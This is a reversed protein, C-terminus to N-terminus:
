PNVYVLGGNGEITAKAALGTASPAANTGDALYVNAALGNSAIAVLINDVSVQSLGCVAVFDTCSALTSVTITTITPVTVSFQTLATNANLSLNSIPGSSSLGFVSLSTNASLDLASIRIGSIQIETSAVLSSIDLSDSTPGTGSNTNVGFKNFSGSKAGESNSAWICYNGGANEIYEDDAYTTVLGTNANRVTFYGTSTTMQWEIYSGNGKMSATETGDCVFPVGINQVYPPCGLVLNEIHVIIDGDPGFPGFTLTDPLPGFNQSPTDAM